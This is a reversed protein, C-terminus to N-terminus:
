RGGMSLLYPKGAVPTLYGSKQLAQMQQWQKEKAWGGPGWRGGGQGGTSGFDPMQQRAQVPAAQVPQPLPRAQPPPAIVPRQPAMIQPLQAGSAAPAATATNNRFLSALNSMGPAAQGQVPQNTMSPQM